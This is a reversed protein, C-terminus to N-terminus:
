DHGFGGALGLGVCFPWGLVFGVCSFGKYILAKLAGTNPTNPKNPKEARAYLFKGEGDSPVFSVSVCARARLWVWCVGCVARLGAGCAAEAQTPNAFGVRCLGACGLVSKATSM